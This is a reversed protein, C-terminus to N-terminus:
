AATREPGVVVITKGLNEGRMLKEFLAPAESLGEARDEKVKLRGESMWKGALRTFEQQRSEFDYVVLGFVQARKAIFVGPNPGTPREDAQYQSALGCLVVRGYNALNLLAAALVDGGVNDFYVDAGRPLAAALADRWDARKYNVCADFGYDRRATECKEDSGAIGVVRAAGLIRAIQGVAGGVGGAASSVLVHEGGALKALQTLGAWATLGPMGAVGLQASLPADSADIRAVASEMIVAYDRWGIEGRVIDGRLFRPSNSAIVEAIVRGPILDGAHPKREGLHRGRLVSGVYPDLSLYITRVLIEGPAPMGADYHELRFDAAVPAASLPRALVVRRAKM